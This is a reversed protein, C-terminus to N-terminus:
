KKKFFRNAICFYGIGALILSLTFIVLKNKIGFALGITVIGVFVFLLAVGVKNAEKKSITAGGFLVKYDDKDKMEAKRM